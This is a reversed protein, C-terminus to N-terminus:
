QGRLKAALFLALIILLLVAAAGYASEIQVDYPTQAAYWVWLPIAGTPETFPAYYYNGFATFLLPATEGAIKATGLLAATIIARSVAKRMVIFIANFERGGIDYAAERIPQEISSYASATILAVYPIMIIALAAAGSYANFGSLPGIFQGIWEGLRSKLIDSLPSLIYNNLDEIILSVFAYVFLGITITPFEVLVNVGARAVKSFWEKGREGIYVGLPFGIAFGALAGLFTMFLTGALLPGIGGKEDFPSPPLATLFEPLGGLKAVASFGRTFVDFIISFLPIVAVIGLIFLAIMGIISNIQRAKM